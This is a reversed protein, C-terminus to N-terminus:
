IRKRKRSRTAEAPQAPVDTIAARELIADITKHERIQQILAKLRNHTELDHRLKDPRVGHEAAIQAIRSAIDSEDVRVSLQEAAKSLIFFQALERGAQEQSAGRMAALEEEIRIPDMGRYMLEVRRRDLARAAQSATLREPLEIRVHELLYSTVQQRMAMQQDLAIRRELRARLAERLQAEDAIRFRTLLEEISARDITDVREVHFHITLAAGRVGEIEHQEPGTCHITVREGAHPLGLQRGLDDVMIGLIMGGADPEPVRVVAGEIHYFETGDPGTMIGTGTLYDGPRPADIQRVRGEHLQLQELEAEVMDETLEVIPRTVPIGELPPLEFDPSVEIELEFRLPQGPQISVREPDRPVPEGLVNLRHTEVAQAYAAAMLQSRAETRIRDGFRREILGLPARGKRFGPLAAEAALAAISERLKADVKEAPIEISLLKRSPGADSIAVADQLETEAPEAM